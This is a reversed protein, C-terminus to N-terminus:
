CCCGSLCSVFRRDLNAIGEAFFWAWKRFTIECCGAMCSHIEEVSYNKLFLLAYLFHKPEAGRTGSFDLWGSKALEKWVVSVENPAAGFHAVFRRHVAKSSGRTNIGVLKCGIEEWVRASPCFFQRPPRRPPM